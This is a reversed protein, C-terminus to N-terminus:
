AVNELRHLYEKCKLMKDEGFLEDIYSILDGVLNKIILPNQAELKRMVKKTLIDDIADLEQGGCAIFVPIYMKIQKMIRNGFSTRFNDIMYSDLKKIKRISRGTVKYEKRAREVLENFHNVSIKVSTERESIFPETKKDLNMVMARDYVKDSIAFTSDDNNATGIFWMNPPLRLRGNKLLKPDNDWKDSVVDINRDEVKPIELLSLFEAFYYEVRAINMEDLIAVYMEENYNAEYMKQLLLTENFKKTFENYYGLLDTREKWMPQIPIVVSSNNLFKGFALALSTKGTGSMGQMIIIHSVSLGAIFQRIDDISYYLNLEYCCFNRFRICIEELTIENNYKPKVYNEMLSDTKSLIFFRPDRGEKDKKGVFEEEQSEEKEKDKDKKKKDKNYYEEKDGVLDILESRRHEASMVMIVIFIMLVLLIAIYIGIAIRSSLIAWITEYLNIDTFFKIFGDM